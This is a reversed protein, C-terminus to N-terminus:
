KVDCVALQSPPLECVTAAKGKHVLPFLGATKPERTTFVQGKRDGELVVVKQSKRTPAEPCLFRLPVRCARKARELHVTVEEGEKASIILGRDGELTGYDFGQSTATPLTDTIHVWIRKDM